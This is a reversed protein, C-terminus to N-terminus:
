QQVTFKLNIPLYCYNLLDISFYISENYMVMTKKFFGRHVKRITIIKEICIDHREVDNMIITIKAM